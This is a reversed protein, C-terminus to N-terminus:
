YVYLKASTSAEKTTAIVIYIQNKAIIPVNYIAKGDLSREMIIRGLLDFIRVEANEDVLSLDLIIENGNYYIHAPLENINQSHPAFHLVFRNPSDEPTAKFLYEPNAKLNYISNNKKDELMVINFNNYDCDVNLKYDGDEGAKFMVPVSPNEITDTLYRVSLHDGINSMYLSPAAPSKSFLKVAGQENSPYGFQLLVEDYGSGALSKVRVKVRNRTESENKFWNNAGDHVRTTNTMVIDGSTGARVFFGQMPAIYRSVDNTGLDDGDSSNYVGYNNATQNWIWMDNGGGSAVLNTRTWGSAKWDISSPYPNGVLNFGQLEPDISSRTVPCTKDGNNLNGAFENTPNLAQASYLYGRGPVFGASTHVTPWNPTVTTNLQYVWCPTSEDWVYLDYGTGNGYTGAPVWNSGAITQDAVPSSLFHWVEAAGTIYREATAPVGNTNHILSGTGGADSNIVLGGNGASNTLTGTVTVAKAADITFKSGLAVTLDNITLLGPQATIGGTNTVSLDNVSTTSSGSITRDTNGSFTVTEADKTYTGNNVLGTNNILIYATGNTNLYAGSNIIIQQGSVQLALMNLALLAPYLFLIFIKKNKM